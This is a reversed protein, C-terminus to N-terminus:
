DEHLLDSLPITISPDRACEAARRDLEAAFEEETCPDTDLSTAELLEEALLIREVAPLAMAARLIDQTETTM